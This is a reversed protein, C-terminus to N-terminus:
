ENDKKKRLVFFMVGGCGLVVVAGIVRYVLKNKRM